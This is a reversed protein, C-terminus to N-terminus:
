RADAGMARFGKLLDDSTDDSIFLLHGNFGCKGWVFMSVCVLIRITKRTRLSDDM